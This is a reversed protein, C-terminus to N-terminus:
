EGTATADPVVDIERSTIDIVDGSSNRAYADVHIRRSTQSNVLAPLTTTASWPAATANGISKGNVFWEVFAVNAGGV